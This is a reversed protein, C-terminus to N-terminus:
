ARITLGVSDRNDEQSFLTVPRITQMTEFDTRIIVDGLRKIDVLKHRPHPGNQAAGLAGPLLAQWFVPDSPFGRKGGDSRDEFYDGPTHEAGLKFNRYAEAPIWDVTENQMIFNGLSYFIPRGKYIEIGRLIHPGHGTFGDCGNDIAWHAFEILFEPASPRHIEHLQGEDGNM